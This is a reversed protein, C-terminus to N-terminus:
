LFMTLLHIQMNRRLIEDLGFFILEISFLSFYVSSVDYIDTTFCCLSFGTKAFYNNEL